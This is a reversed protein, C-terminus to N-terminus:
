KFYKDGGRNQFNNIWGGILNINSFNTLSLGTVGPSNLGGAGDENPTYTGAAVYIYGPQGYKQGLTALLNVGTQITMIPLSPTNGSNGDSGTPSLAVYAPVNYIFSNNAKGDGSSNKLQVSVQHPGCPLNLNSLVWNPSSTSAQTYTGGDIAVFINYGGTSYAIYTGSISPAGPGITESLSISSDNPGLGSKNSFDPNFLLQCSALLILYAASASILVYIKKM